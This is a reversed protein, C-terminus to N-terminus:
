GYFQCCVHVVITNGTVDVLYTFPLHVGAYGNSSGL